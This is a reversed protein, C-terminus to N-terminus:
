DMKDWLGWFGPCSKNVCTENTIYIGPIRLGAIAMSMALRHDDHPDITAGVFNEGGHIILGDDLEDVKAGLKGLEQTLSSLRDSEKFRLHHVNGLHTKGKAFISVVALTPVMDPIESMDVNIGKLPGGKINVRDDEIKVSCGMKRFIDLLAIDGQHTKLPNVNETTVQGGTVASAAWFYAATSLDGDIAYTGAKYKQGASIKFKEYGDRYLDIGFRMMENITIDIYPKSVLNGIVEIEVDQEAYPAAILLSSIYQSSKGGSIEIKGGLIGDAMISVPPYKDRGLYSIKVGLDQLARVLDGIPRECMREIGTITYTGRALAVLSLLLRYSTGSNGLFLKDQDSDRDFSGGRGYVILDNGQPEIKIGLQKLAKSTYHTDECQLFNNLISKGDALSAMILARHTISKSGPIKVSFNIRNRNIIKKM